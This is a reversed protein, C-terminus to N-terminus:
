LLSSTVVFCLPTYLLLKSRFLNGSSFPAKKNAIVNVVENGFEDEHPPFVNLDLPARNENLISVDEIADFDNYPDNLDTPQPSRNENLILVDQTADSDNYPENLNIDLVM